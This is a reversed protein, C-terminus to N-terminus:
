RLLFPLVTGVLGLGALLLCTRGTSSLNFSRNRWFFHLGLWIGLWLVIAITSKGSLSGVPAYLVPVSLAGMASLFTILGMGLSGLGVGVLAAAIAGNNLTTQQM